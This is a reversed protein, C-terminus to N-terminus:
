IRLGGLPTWAAFQRMAPPSNEWDKVLRYKQTFIMWIQHSQSWTPEGVVLWILKKCMGTCFEPFQFWSRAQWFCFVFSCVFAWVFIFCQRDSLDTAHVQWTHSPINAEMQNVWFRNTEMPQNMHELSGPAALHAVNTAAICIQWAIIEKSTLSSPLLSMVYCVNASFSSKLLPANPNLTTWSISLNWTSCWVEIVPVALVHLFLKTCDFCEDACFLHFNRISKQIM